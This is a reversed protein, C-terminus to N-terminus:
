DLLQICAGLVGAGIYTSLTADLEGEWFNEANPFAARLRKGLEAMEDPAGGNAVALNYRTHGRLKEALLQELKPQVAKRGRVKAVSVLQGDPAFGIVPKINLMTGALATVKGIRGGKQLYELTDISFYPWTNAILAPVRRATLEEWTMGALIDEWAQLLMSGIALSGSSSDFVAAELDSREAAHLRVLNCTGSLGGSLHIALVKEFGAAAIEDLVADVDGGDPLSTHMEMGAAQMRYVDQATLDVGDSFEDTGCRIKLPLVFIPKGKRQKATLDACSDTLLAIRQPNRRLNPGQTSM